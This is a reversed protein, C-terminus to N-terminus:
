WPRTEGQAGPPATVALGSGRRGRRGHSETGYCRDRVTGESLLPRDPSAQAAGVGLM